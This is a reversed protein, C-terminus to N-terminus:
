RLWYISYQIFSRCRASTSRRAVCNKNDLPLRLSLNLHISNNSEECKYRVNLILRLIGQETILGYEISLSNRLLRYRQADFPNAIPYIIGSFIPVPDRWRLPTSLKKPLLGTLAIEPIASVRARHSLCRDQSPLRPDPFPFKSHQIYFNSNRINFHPPLIAHPKNFKLLAVQLDGRRRHM